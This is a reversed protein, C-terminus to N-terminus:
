DQAPCGIQRALADLGPKLARRTRQMRARGADDLDERKTEIELRWRLELTLDYAEQAARALRDADGDGRRSVIAQSSALSAYLTAADRPPRHSFLGRCRDARPGILVHATERTARRQGDADPAKFSIPYDEVRVSRISSLPAVQSAALAESLCQRFREDVEVADGESGRLTSIDRVGVDQLRGTGSAITFDIRAVYEGALGNREFAEEYCAVVRPLANQSMAQRVHLEVQSSSACALNISAVSVIAVNLLRFRTM